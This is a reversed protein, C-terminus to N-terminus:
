PRLEFGDESNFLGAQVYQEGTLSRKGDGFYQVDWFGDRKLYEIVAEKLTTAKTELVVENDQKCFLKTM